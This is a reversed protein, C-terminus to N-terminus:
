EDVLGLIWNVWGVVTSSRREYTNDAGINYLNSNKMIAVITNMKPMEGSRLHLKLTENFVRHSLIQAAIALQRQRYELAMVRQGLPSLVFEINGDDNKDKEIFGLYRGADTYYNTQREDFAYESTIDQKTMPKDHLLEILNVVRFMSNAQPFAIEPEQVIKCTSLIKEIDSLHIEASIIYNRQKILHLSNYQRPNDFQYQFLNFVGNSFVLFVPKITKTIRESWTRFPYYLQRILFDDALDRKAELISLYEIGEYAADIEIQSNNVDVLQTGFKTDINFSFRGSSMRGCVTAMLERDELFDELIGSAIAYNLAIAESTLFQPTLSQVYTPASIRQYNDSLEDFSKYADFSSIVYDGRTIPLISLNNSSFVTPLNTKHDFKTMLRPERYEKIQKASIVYRGNKEIEDLIHYKEFLLKWAADNLNMIGFLCRRLPVVSQQM